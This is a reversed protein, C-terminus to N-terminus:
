YLAILKYPAKYETHLEWDCQFIALLFCCVTFDDIKHLEATISNDTSNITDSFLLRLVSIMIEALECLCLDTLIIRYMVAIGNQLMVDTIVIIITTYIRWVHFYIESQWKQERPGHRFQTGAASPVQLPRIYIM